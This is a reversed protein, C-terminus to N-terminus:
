YRHNPDMINKISQVNNNTQNMLSHADDYALALQENNREMERVSSQIGDNISALQQNIDAKLEDFAAFLKNEMNAQQQRDESREIQHQYYKIASSWDRAYGDKLIEVLTPLASWFKEPVPNVKAFAQYSEDFSQAAARYMETFRKNQAVAADVVNQEGQIVDQDVRFETAVPVNAKIQEELYAAQEKKATSLKANLDIEKANLESYRQTANRNISAKTTKIVCNILMVPWSLVRLCFTGLLHVVSIKLVENGIYLIFSLGLGAIIGPAVSYSVYYQWTGATIAEYRYTNTVFNQIPLYIAVCIFLSILLYFLIKIGFKGELPERRKVYYNDRLKFIWNDLDTSTRVKPGLENAEQKTAALEQDLSAIKQNLEMYKEDNKALDSELDMKACERQMNQQREIASALEAKNRRVQAQSDTVMDHIKQLTNNQRDLTNQLEVKHELQKILEPYDLGLWYAVNDTTTIEHKNM